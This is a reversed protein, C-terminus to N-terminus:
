IRLKFNLSDANDNDNNHAELCFSIYDTSVLFSNQLDGVFSFRAVLPLLLVVVRNM